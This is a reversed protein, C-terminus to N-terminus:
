RFYQDLTTQQMSNTQEKKIFKEIKGVLKIQESANEQQLLFLNLTKLSQLAKNICIIEVEASDDVEDPHDAPGNRFMDAFESIDDPIEYIMDEEPITLFEKMQMANPLRLAKIAKNLEDDFVLEDDLMLEDELMQEDDFMQEDDSMQENSLIKVHNWCNKITDATVESWGQIIYQIAQLVNMKLDQIFQGAEVQELM